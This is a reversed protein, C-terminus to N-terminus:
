APDTLDRDVTVPSLPALTAAKMKDFTHKAGDCMFQSDLVDFVGCLYAYMEQLTCCRSVNMEGGGESIIQALTYRTWGDGPSNTELLFHGVNARTSVKGTAADTSRTWGAVPRNLVVNLRNVRAELMKRTVRM